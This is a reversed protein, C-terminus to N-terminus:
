VDRLTQRLCIRQLEQEHDMVKDVKELNTAILGPNDRLFVHIELLFGEGTLLNDEKSDREPRM